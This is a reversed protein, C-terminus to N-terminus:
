DLVQAKRDEFLVHLNLTRGTALFQAVAGLLQTIGDRSRDESHITKVDAGLTTRCLDSLVKGPGSEIFVRAGAAYLDALEDAFRVPKVLHEALRNKIDDPVQPYPKATTNSWVPIRPKGFPVDQLTTRFASESAAILPSHFACAVELPKCPIGAAKLRGAATLIAETGGALVWQEPSNHNVAYVGMTENAMAEFAERRAQVALMMGKDDGVGDLIAA